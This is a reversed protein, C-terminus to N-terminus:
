CSRIDRSSKRRRVSIGLLWTACVSSIHDDFQSPSSVHKTARLSFEGTRIKYELRFRDPLTQRGHSPQTNGIAKAMTGEPRNFIEPRTRQNRGKPVVGPQFKLQSGVWCEVEDNVRRMEGELLTCSRGACRM